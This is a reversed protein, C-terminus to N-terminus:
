TKMNRNGTFDLMTVGADNFRQYQKWEAGPYGITDGLFSVVVVLIPVSCVIYGKRLKEKLSIDTECVIMGAVAVLGLPAVLLMSTRRMLCALLEFLVFSMMRSHKDKYLLLCVWGASALLIPTSTFQIQGVYYCFALFFGSTMGIPIIMHYWKECQSCASDLIGWYSLWHFVLLMWGYWPVATTIRYLFSLPLCLFYNVYIAHADPEGTLLGSLFSAIYRDDNTELYIGMMRWVVFILGFSIIATMCRRYSAKM